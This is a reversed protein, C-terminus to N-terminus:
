PSLFQGIFRLDACAISLCVFRKKKFYNKFYSKGFKEESKWIKQYHANGEM